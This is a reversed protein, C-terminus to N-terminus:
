GNSTGELKKLISWAAICIMSIAFTVARHPSDAILELVYFVGFIISMLGFWAASM